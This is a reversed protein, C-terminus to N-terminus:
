KVKARRNAARRPTLKGERELEDIWALKAQRVREATLGFHGRLYNRVIPNPVMKRLNHWALVVMWPPLNDLDDMSRIRVLKDKNGLGPITNGV